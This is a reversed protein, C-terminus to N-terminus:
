PGEPIFLIQNFIDFPVKLLFTTDRPLVPVTKLRASTLGSTQDKGVVIQQMENVKVAAKSTFKSRYVFPYM